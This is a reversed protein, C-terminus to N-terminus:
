KGLKKLEVNKANKIELIKELDNMVKINTNNLFFDKISKM